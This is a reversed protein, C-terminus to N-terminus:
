ATASPVSDSPLDFRSKTPALGDFEPARKERWSRIGEAFDASELAEQMYGDARRVAEPLTSTLDSYTQRKIVAMAAPSCKACIQAAYEQAAGLVEDDGVIRNVLGIRAAEEARVVRASLLLDNAVGLGVMRPLLWSLGLEAILGRRAFATAFKSSTGAFRLDCLLALQMGVGFCAGNVAAIVPKAITMATWYTPRAADAQFSGADAVNNLGGADAGVCFDSGAGTVVIARAAPDLALGELAAFFNRGLTPTWGNGPPRNFTVTAVGAMIDVDVSGDEAWPSGPSTAM